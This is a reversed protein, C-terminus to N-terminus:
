GSTGIPRWCCRRPSSRPPTARGPHPRPRRALHGRALAEVDGPWRPRRRRAPRRSRARGPRGCRRRRGDPRRRAPDGTDPGGQGRVRQRRARCASVGLSRPVPGAEAVAIGVADAGKPMARVVNVDVDSIATMSGTQRISAASSSAAVRVSGSSAVSQGTAQRIQHARLGIEVRDGLPDDDEIAREAREHLIEVEAGVVEAAGGEFAAVLHQAEGSGVDDRRHVLREEVDADIGDLGGAEAAEGGHEGLVADGVLGYSSLSAAARM